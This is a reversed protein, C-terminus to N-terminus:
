GADVTARTCLAALEHMRELEGVLADAGIAEFYTEQFEFTIARSAASGRPTTLRWRWVEPPTLARTATWTSAPSSTAEAM